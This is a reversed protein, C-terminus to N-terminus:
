IASTEAAECRVMRVASGPDDETGKRVTVTDMLAMMLLMGRGRSVEAEPLPLPEKFTGDDQVELELCTNWARWLLRWVSSGSHEIANNCAEMVAMLVEESTRSSFGVQAMLKRLFARADTLIAPDAPFDQVGQMPPLLM